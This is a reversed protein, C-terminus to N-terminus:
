QGECEPVLGGSRLEPIQALRTVIVSGTLDVLLLCLESALECLAPPPASSADLWAAPLSYRYELRERTITLNTLEPCRRVARLAARRLLTATAATGLM